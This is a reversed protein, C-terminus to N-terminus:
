EFFVFIKIINEPFSYNTNLCILTEWFSTYVVNKQNIKM